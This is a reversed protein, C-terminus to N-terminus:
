LGSLVARAATLYMSLKDQGAADLRAEIRTLVSIGTALWGDPIARLTLLGDTVAEVVVRTNETSLLPACPAPDICRELKNLEIAAHQLTGLGVAVENAQWVRVGKPSLSAPAQSPCAALSLLAVFVLLRHM